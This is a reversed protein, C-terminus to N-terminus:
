PAEMHSEWDRKENKRRAAEICEVVDFGLLSLTGLFFIFVDGAEEKLREEDAWNEDYWIAKVLLSGFEAIEAMTGMTQPVPALNDFKNTRWEHSERQVQQIYREDPFSQTPLHKHVLKWDIDYSVRRREMLRRVAELGDSGFKKEIVEQDVPQQEQIYAEVEDM